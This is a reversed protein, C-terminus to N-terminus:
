LKTIRIEVKDNINPNLEKLMELLDVDESFVLEGNHYRIVFEEKKVYKM